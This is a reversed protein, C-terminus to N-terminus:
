PNIHKLSLERSHNDTINIKCNASWLQQPIGSPTCIKGDYVCWWSPSLAPPLSIKRIGKRSQNIQTKGSM